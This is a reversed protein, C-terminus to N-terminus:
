WWWTLFLYLTFSQPLCLQYDPLAVLLSVMTLLRLLLGGGRRPSLLTHSGSAEPPFTVVITFCYGGGGRHFSLSLTHAVLKLLFHTRQLVYYLGWGRQQLPPTPSHSLQRRQLNSPRALGSRWLLRFSQLERWDQIESTSLFSCSKPLM